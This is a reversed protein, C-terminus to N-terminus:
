TANMLQYYKFNYIIYIEDKFYVSLKHTLENCTLSLDPVLHSCINTHLVDSGDKKLHRNDESNDAALLPERMMMMLLVRACM